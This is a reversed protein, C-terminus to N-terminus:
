AVGEVAARPTSLRPAALGRAAQFDALARAIQRDIRREADDVRTAEPTDLLLADAQARRAKNEGADAEAGVRRAVETLMHATSVVLEDVDTGALGLPMSENATALAARITKSPVPKDRSALYELADQLATAPEEAGTGPGYVTKFGEAATRVTVADISGPRALAAVAHGYKAIADASLRVRNATKVIVEARDAAESLKEAEYRHVRRGRWLASCLREALAVELTSRADLDAVIDRAFGNYEEISELHRLVTSSAYLGGAKLANLASRRKGALSRPGTAREIPVVNNGAM